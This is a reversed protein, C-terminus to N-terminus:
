EGLIGIVPKGSGYSAVFATPMDAVGREIKFGHREIMDTLYESSKYELLALEAFEWIKQAAENLDEKNDEIWVLAEKKYIDMREQAIARGFLALISVMIIIKTMRMIIRWFFHQIMLGVNGIDIKQLLKVHIKKFKHYFVLM